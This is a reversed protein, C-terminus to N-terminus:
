VALQNDNVAFLSLLGLFFRLIAVNNAVTKPLHWYHISTIVLSNQNRFNFNEGSMDLAIGYM